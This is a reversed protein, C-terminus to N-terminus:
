DWVSHSSNVALWHGTIDRPTVISDVWLVDGHLATGSKGAVGNEVQPKGFVQLGANLLRGIFM